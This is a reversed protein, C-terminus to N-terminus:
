FLAAAAVAIVSGIILFPIFALSIICLIGLFKWFNKNNRFATELDEEMGNRLYSLIKEGFRYAFLSLFFLLVGLGICYVGLSGSFVMGMVASFPESGPARDWIQAALPVLLFISAGSFVTLGSGIFGLIGVFRLWPSAGKLHILMAETLIGQAALPKVPVFATEPSQYPNLADSM